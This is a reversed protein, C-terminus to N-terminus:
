DIIDDTLNELLTCALSFRENDRKVQVKGTEEIRM